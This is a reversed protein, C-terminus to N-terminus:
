RGLGLLGTFSASHPQAESDAACHDFRTVAALFTTLDLLSYPGMKSKVPPKLLMFQHKSFAAQVLSSSEILTGDLRLIQDQLDQTSHKSQSETASNSCQLCHPELSNTTSLMKLSTLIGFNLREEFLCSCHVFM